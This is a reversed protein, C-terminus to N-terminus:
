QVSIYTPRTTASFPAGNKSVGIQVPALNGRNYITLMSCLAGRVNPQAHAATVNPMPGCELKLEKDKYQKRNRTGHPLGLSAVDTKWRVRLM